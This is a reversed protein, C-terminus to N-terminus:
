SLEWEVGALVAGEVLEMTQEAGQCGPDGPAVISGEGIRKKRPEVGLEIERARDGPKPDTSTFHRAGYRMRIRSELSAPPSYTGRNM